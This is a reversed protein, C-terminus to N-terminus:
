TSYYGAEDLLYKHEKNLLQRTSEAYTDGVGCYKRILAKSFFPKNNDKRYGIFKGPDELVIAVCEKISNKKPKEQQKEDTTDQLDKYLEATFTAKREEYPGILCQSPKGIRVRTLQTNPNVFLYKRYVNGTIPDTEAEKLKTVCEDNVIKITEVTYHALERLHLDTMKLVPLTLIIFTNRHRVTQALKSVAKNLNSMANRNMAEIGAEDFVIADGKKSKQHLAILEKVGFCVRDINFGPDLLEALHLAAWSKGSGTQGLIIIILNKNEEWVRNYLIRVVPNTPTQKM